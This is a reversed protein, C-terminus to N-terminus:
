KQVPVWATMGDVFGLVMDEPIPSQEAEIEPMGQIVDIKEAIPKAPLNQGGHAKSGNLASRRKGEPTKPGTSM